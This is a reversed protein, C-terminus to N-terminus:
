FRRQRHWEAMVMNWFLITDLLTFVYLLVALWESGTNVDSDLRSIVVLSWVVLGIWVLAMVFIGLMRM